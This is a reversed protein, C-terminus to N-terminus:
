ASRDKGRIVDVMWTMESVFDDIGHDSPAALLATDGVPIDSDSRAIFQPSGIAKQDMPQKLAMKNGEISQPLSYGPFPTNSQELSHKRTSPLSFPQFGYVEGDNSSLVDDDDNSDYFSPAEDYSPPDTSSIVSSASSLSRCEPAEQDAEGDTGHRLEGEAADGATSTVCQTLTM